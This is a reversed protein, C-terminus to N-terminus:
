MLSKFLAEYSGCCLSSCFNMLCNDVERSFTAMIPHQEYIEHMNELSLLNKHIWPIGSLNLEELAQCQALEDPLSSLGTTSLSLLQLKQFNAVRPSMQSVATNNALLRRLNQASFIVDPIDRFLTDSMDFEELNDVCGSFDEPLQSLPNGSFNLSTMAKCQGLGSPLQQIKQNSLNLKALHKFRSFLSDPLHTLRAPQSVYQEDSSAKKVDSDGLVLQDILHEYGQVISEDFHAHGSSQFDTVIRHVDCLDHAGTADKALGLFEKAADTQHPISNFQM